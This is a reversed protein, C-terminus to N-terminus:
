FVCKSTHTGMITRRMCPNTLLAGESCICWISTQPSNIICAECKGKPDIFYGACYRILHNLHNQGRKSRLDRVEATEASGQIRFTELLCKEACVAALVRELKENTPPERCFGLAKDRREVVM